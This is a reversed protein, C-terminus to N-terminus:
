GEKGQVPETQQKDGMAAEKHWGDKCSFWPIWRGGFAESWARFKAKDKSGCTPCNQVPETQESMTEGKQAAIREQQSHSPHTM